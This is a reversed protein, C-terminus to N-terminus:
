ASGVGRLRRAGIDDEDLRIRGARGRGGRAVRAGVHGMTDQAEADAATLRAPVPGDVFVQGRVAEVRPGQPLPDAVEEAGRATPM